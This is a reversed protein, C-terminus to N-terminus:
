QRVSPGAGDGKPAPGRTGVGDSEVDLGDDMAPATPDPTEAFEIAGMPEGGPADTLEVVEIVLEEGYEFVDM